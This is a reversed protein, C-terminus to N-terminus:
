RANEDITKESTACDSAGITVARECWSQGKKDFRLAIVTAEIARRQPHGTVDLM